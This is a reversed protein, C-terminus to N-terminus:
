IWPQTERDTSRIFNLVIQMVWSTMLVRFNKDILVKKRFLNVGSEKWVSKCVLNQLEYFFIWNTKRNLKHKSLYKTYM